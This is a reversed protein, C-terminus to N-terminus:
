PIVVTWKNANLMPEAGAYSYVRYEVADSNGANTVQVNPKAVFSGTIDDGKETKISGAPLVGYSAPYAFVAYNNGVQFQLTLTFDATESNIPKGAIKSLDRIHASTDFDIVDNSTKYFIAKKPVVSGSAIVNGATLKIAGKTADTSDNGKSTKPMPGEAYSVKVKYNQVSTHVVDTYSKSSTMGTSEYTAGNDNSFEYGTIEGAYAGSQEAGQVWVSGDYAGLIRGDNFSGTVTIDSKSGYEPSSPLGGLSASPDEKGPFYEKYLLGTIFDALTTGADIKEGAEYGGLTIDSTLTTTTVSSGQINLGTGGTSLVKSIYGPGAIAAASVGQTTSFGYYLTTDNENMALEGNKLVDMGPAGSLQPNTPPRRKILIDINSNNTAM